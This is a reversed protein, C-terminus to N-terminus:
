AHTPLVFIFASLSEDEAEVPDETGGRVISRPLGWEGSSTYSKARRTNGKELEEKWLRM